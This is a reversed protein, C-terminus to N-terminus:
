PKAGAASNRYRWTFMVGSTPFTWGDVTVECEDPDTSGKPYREVAIKGPQLNSMFLVPELQTM